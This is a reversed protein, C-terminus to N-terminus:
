VLVLKKQKEKTGRNETVRYAALIKVTYTVCNLSAAGLTKKLDFNELGHYVSLM